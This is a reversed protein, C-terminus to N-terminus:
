LAAPDHVTVRGGERHARKCDEIFEKSFLATLIAIGGRAIRVEGNHIEGVLRIRRGTKGQGEWDKVTGRGTIRLDWQDVVADEPVLLKIASRSARVRVVIDGEPIRPSRLDLLAYGNRARVEFSSADTWDGLKRVNASFSEVKVVTDNV